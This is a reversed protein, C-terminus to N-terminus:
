ELSKQKLYKDLKEKDFSSALLLIFWLLNAIGFLILFTYLSENSTDTIPAKVPTLIIMRHSPDHNGVNAAAREFQRRSDTNDM